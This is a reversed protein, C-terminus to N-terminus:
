RELSLTPLFLSCYSMAKAMITDHPCFCPRFERLMEKTASRPFYPRAVKILAKLSKEFDAPYFKMSMIVAHSSLDEYLDYLPRWDLSLDEPTLLRRKKLLVLLVRLYFNNTRIMDTSSLESRICTDMIRPEMDKTVLLSWVLKVLGVHEQRTMKFGYLNIFASLRSLWTVLGPRLDRLVVAEALNAKIEELWAM